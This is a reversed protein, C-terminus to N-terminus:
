SPAIPRFVRTYSNMIRTRCATTLSWFRGQWQGPVRSKTDPHTGQASCVSGPPFPSRRAVCVSGSPFPSRRPGRAARGRLSPVAVPLPPGSPRPEGRGHWPRPGIRHGASHVGVGSPLSLSPSLWWLSQQPSTTRLALGTPSPLHLRRPFPIAPGFAFACACRLFFSYQSVHGYGLSRGAQSADSDGM